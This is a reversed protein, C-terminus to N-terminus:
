TNCLAFFRVNDGPNEGANCPNNSVHLLNQDIPCFHAQAYRTPAPVM